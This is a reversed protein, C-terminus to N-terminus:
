YKCDPWHSQDPRRGHVPLDSGPERLVCGRERFIENRLRQMIAIFTEREQETRIRPSTREIYHGLDNWAEALPVGAASAARALRRCSKVLHRERQLTMGPLPVVFVRSRIQDVLWYDKM